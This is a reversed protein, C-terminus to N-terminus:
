PLFMAGTAQPSDILSRVTNESSTNCLPASCLIAFPIQSFM